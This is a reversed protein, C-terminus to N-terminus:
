KAAISSPGTDSINKLTALPFYHGLIKKYDEGQQALQRTGWQCLGVGHGHGRGNFVYKSNQKEINFLTSKLKNFGLRMRFREALFLEEGGEFKVLVTNARGSPSKSKIEISHIKKIGLKKEIESQTLEHQWSKFGGLPCSRDKIQLGPQEVRWVFFPTETMGGCDSHFYSRLVKQNQGVLVEGRTLRIAEKVKAKIENPNNKANVDFVQDLVTSEVHFPKLLSYRKQALAYSRSVVAQAKLAELPWSPPMESAIVGELYAELELDLIKNKAKDVRVRITEQIMASSPVAVVLALLLLSTKAYRFFHTRTTNM